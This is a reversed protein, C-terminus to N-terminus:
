KGWPKKLLETSFNKITRYEKLLDKMETDVNELKSLPVYPKAGNDLLIKAVNKDSRKMAIILANNGSKNIADIERGQDIL